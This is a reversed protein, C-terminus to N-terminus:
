SEPGDRLASKVRAIAPNPKPDVEYLLALYYAVWDGLYAARLMATLPDEGGVALEDHSVGARDLEQATLQVRRRNRPLLFGADLTIVHPQEGGPTGAFGDILNHDVEPLEAHFAWRKSLENIQQAWRRAAVALTEAGFVVPLRGVLRVATRKALNEAAPVALGWQEAGAALGDFSAAVAEPDARVAGLRELIALLPFLGYGMAVKPPGPHTHRFLPYGHRSALEALRGGSTIALRMGPEAGARELAALVEETEGSHSCAVLLADRDLLPPAYGRVVRV